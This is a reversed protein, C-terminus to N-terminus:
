TIATARVSCHCDLQQAQGRTVKLDISATPFARGYLLVFVLLGAIGLLPLVLDGMPSAKHIMTAAQM